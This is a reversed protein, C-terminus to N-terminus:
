EVYRGDERVEALKKALEVEGGACLFQLVAAHLREKESGKAGGELRHVRKKCVDYLRVQEMCSESLHRKM